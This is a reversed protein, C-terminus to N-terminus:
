LYGQSKFMEMVIERTGAGFNKYKFDNHKVSDAIEEISMDTNSMSEFFSSVRKVMGKKSTFERIKSKPFIECLKREDKPPSFPASPLKKTTVLEDLMKEFDEYSIDLKILLSFLRAVQELDPKRM